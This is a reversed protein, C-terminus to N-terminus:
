HRIAYILYLIKLNLANSKAKKGYLRNLMMIILRSIKKFCAKRLAKRTLIGLWIGVLNEWSVSTPTFQFKVNPHAAFWAENKTYKGM